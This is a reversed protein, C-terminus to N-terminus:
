MRNIDGMDMTEGFENTDQDYYTKQMGWILHLRYSRFLYPFFWVYRFLWFQANSFFCSLDIAIGTARDFDDEQQGIETWIRWRNNQLIKNYMLTSFYLFNGLTSVFILRVSQSKM